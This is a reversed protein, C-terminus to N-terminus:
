GKCHKGVRNGEEICNKAVKISKFIISRELDLQSAEKKKLESEELAKKRAEEDNHIKRQESLYCQYRTHSAKYSETLGKSITINEM